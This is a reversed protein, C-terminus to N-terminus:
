EYEDEDSKGKKKRRLVFNVVNSLATVVKDSLNAAYDTTHDILEFLGDMKILKRSVDDLLNDVKDLTRLLRIIFYIAFIVLIILVIYLTIPLVSQLDIM